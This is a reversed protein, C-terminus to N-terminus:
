ALKEEEMKRENQCSVIIRNVEIPENQAQLIEWDAKSVTSKTRKVRFTDHVLITRRLYTKKIKRLTNVVDASTCFVSLNLNSVSLILEILVGPSIGNRM